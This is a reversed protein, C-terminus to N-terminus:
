TTSQDQLDKVCEPLKDARGSWSGAGWRFGASKLAGLIDREPKESFTVTAWEGSIVILVGGAAEAKETRAQRKKIQEVREKARRIEAGLNQLRYSPVPQREWSYRQPIDAGLRAATADSIGPCGKMSKHKRWWANIRKFEARESELKEIKAELQEIADPDDSFISTELQNEIGDAKSDHHKAMTASESGARMNSHCRDLAARHRKESHHGVLIPQGFPINEVVADAAKFRAAADARRKDAWERRKEAKRELRERRTM